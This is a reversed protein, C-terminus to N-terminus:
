VAETSDTQSLGAADQLVSIQGADADLRGPRFQISAVTNQNNSDLAQYGYTTTEEFGLIGDSLTAGSLQLAEGPTSTPPASSIDSSTDPDDRAILVLGLVVLIGAAVTLWLQPRPKRARPSPVERLDIVDTDAPAAREAEFRALMREEIRAAATPELPVPRDIGQLTQRITEEEDRHETTM